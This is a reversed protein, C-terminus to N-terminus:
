SQTEVVLQPAKDGSERSALNLASSPNTATLAVSVEGAGDLLSTVDITAWTGRKLAGSSGLPTATYSPASGYTMTEPWGGPSVHVDFGAGGTNAWIRLTASRLTGTIAHVDFGLYAVSIPSGDVRLFPKSGFASTPKDEEVYTDASPAITFTQIQETTVALATGAQSRRGDFGLAAVAYTYSTKPTATGDEYSTAAPPVVAIPVGNRLVLLAARGSVPSADWALDVATAGTSTAHLGSPAAPLPSSVPRLRIRLSSDHGVRVRFGAVHRTADYTRSLVTAGSAAAPAYGGTTVQLSVVSGARDPLGVTLTRGSVSPPAIGLTELHTYGRGDPTEVGTANVSMGAPVARPRFFIPETMALIEGDAGLLEARVYTFAPGLKVSHVLDLSGAAVPDSEVQQGNEVWVVRANEPVGATISLHVIALQQAPSVYVPYRAAYPVASGPDLNLVVHGPFSNWAMFARGEYAAQLLSDLTLAPAYLYTAEGLSETRHADSTWTGIVQTGRRLIADWVQLMADNTGRPAAEMLDANEARTAIAVNMKVGGPLAPHDLQAPYGEAHTLPISVPGNKYLQWQSPKTIDYNFRSSHGNLGAELGAFVKFTPTDLKPIEANRRVFESGTSTPSKADLSYADFYADATGGSGAAALRLQTIADDASPQLAAPLSAIAKSVDITYTNWKDLTYPLQTVVVRGTASSSSARANGLEWVFVVSHGPVVAGTRTTYGNPPYGRGPTSADCLFGGGAEQAMMPDGGVALSVYAASGPDIQKPDVSFRLVIDGQHLNPGRKYWVFSEGYGAATAALHLSASGSEVPSSVLADTTATPNGYVAQKWQKVDDELRIHNAIVGGIPANSGASHDTVFVANYGLSRAAQSMVNLDQVADGSTVTHVHLDVKWWQSPGNAQAGHRASAGSALIAIGAM